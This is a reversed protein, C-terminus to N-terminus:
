CQADGTNCEMVTSRIDSLSACGAVAMTVELEECLTRLLHAVGLAGAVALAYVQLRGVLVANAGLAIAKFIDAGSRIGGDFLLPFNDGVARRVQPLMTLTAPVGDLTRGGHNSVVVGAVGLSQLRVADETHLVGKVWVPLTTQALLWLLDKEQLLHRMAASFIRNEGADVGLDPMDVDTMDVYGRLNAPVCEDPMRFGARLATSSPMQIAADVTVVIATYGAAEARRLLDLTHVRSPQMYLQFWRSAGAQQKEGTEQAIAELIQSSLTSAIMGCQMAAAGRATELEARPHALVQHAVPALLLPHPMQQGLLTQATNGASVDRLVRPCIAWRAFARRNAQATMNDGAGGEIYAFVPEPLLRQAAAVYDAACFIGAPIQAHM